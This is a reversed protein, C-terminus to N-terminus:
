RIAFSAVIAAASFVIVFWFLYMGGSGHPQAAVAASHRALTEPRMPAALPVLMTAVGERQMAELVAFDLPGTGKARPPDVTTLPQM